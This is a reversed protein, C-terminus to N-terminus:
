ASQQGAAELRIYESVCCLVQQLGLCHAKPKYIKHKYIKHKYIKHKYIKHKYIKPSQEQLPLGNGLSYSQQPTITCSCHPGKAAM